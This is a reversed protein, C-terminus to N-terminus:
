PTPSTTSASPRPTLQTLDLTADARHLATTLLDTIDPAPTGDDPVATRVMIIGRQDDHMVPAYVMDIATTALGTEVQATATQHFGFAGDPLGAPDLLTITMSVDQGSSPTPSSPWLFPQASTIGDCDTVADRLWRVQDGPSSEIVNLVLAETVSASGTEIREVTLHTEPVWSIALNVISDARPCNSQYRGTDYWTIDTADPIDQRTLMLSRLPSTDKETENKRTSAKHAYVGVAVAVVLVVVVVRWWRSRM